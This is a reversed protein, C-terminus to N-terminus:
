QRGQNTWNFISVLTQCIILVLLVTLQETIKPPLLLCSMESRVIECANPKSAQHESSHVGHLAHCAPQQVALTDRYSLTGDANQSKVESVVSSLVHLDTLM